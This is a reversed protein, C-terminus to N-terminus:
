KTEFLSGAVWDDLGLAARSEGGSVSSTEGGATNKYGGSVSSNKGSAISGDGGSVSSQLGSAISQVGGSISSRSGSATNASGGSVSSFDGLVNNRFGVVLGGFQSYNHQAGVVLVHSGSKHIDAWVEGNFECDTQDIFQGNSCMEAGFTKEEDYGVVLNGLGNKSKTDGLGNNVHLNIGSFIAVPNGQRDTDISLYNALGSVEAVQLMEIEARLETNETKLNAIEANAAALAADTSALGASLTDVSSQLSAMQALLAAIQTNNDNVSTATADFNANVDAALAKTGATFSNPIALESAQVSGITFLLIVTLWQTNFISQKDQQKKM